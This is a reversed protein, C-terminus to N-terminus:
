AELRKGTAEFFSSFIIAFLDGFSKSFRIRERWWLKLEVLFNCYSKKAVRLAQWSFSRESSVLLSPFNHAAPFIRNLQRTCLVAGIERAQLRMKIRLRSEKDAQRCDILFCVCITTYHTLIQWTRKILPPLKNRCIVELSRARLVSNIPLLNHGSM